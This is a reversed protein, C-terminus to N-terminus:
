SSTFQLRSARVIAIAIAIGICHLTIYHLPLMTIKHAQSEPHIRLM